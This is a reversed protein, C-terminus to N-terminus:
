GKNDIDEVYFSVSLNNIANSTIINSLPETTYATVNKLGAETKFLYLM